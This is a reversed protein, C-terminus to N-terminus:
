ERAFRVVVCGFSGEMDGQAPSKNVFGPMVTLFEEVAHKRRKAVCVSREFMINREGVGTSKAEELQYFNVNKEICVSRSTQAKM